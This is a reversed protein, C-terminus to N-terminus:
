EGYMRVDDPLLVTVAANQTTEGKALARMKRVQLLVQWIMNLGINQIEKWLSM